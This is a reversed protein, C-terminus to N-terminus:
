RNVRKRQEFDDMNSAMNAFDRKRADDLTQQNMMMRRQLLAEDTRPAGLQSQSHLANEVAARTRLDNLLAQEELARREALLQSVRSASTGGLIGQQVESMRGQLDRNQMMSPNQHGGRSASCLVNNEHQLRAIDREFNHIDQGLRAAELTANTNSVLSPAFNQYQQAAAHLSLGGGGGGNFSTLGHNNGSRQGLMSAYSLQQVMQEQERRQRHRHLMEMSIRDAPETSTSNNHMGQMQTHRYIGEMMLRQQAFEAMMMAQQPPVMGM